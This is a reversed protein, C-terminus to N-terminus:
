ARDLRGASSLARRLQDTAIYSTSRGSGETRLWGAAALSRLDLVATAPAIGHRGRHGRNTLPHGTVARVLADVCRPSLQELTSLHTCSDHQASAAQAQECSLQLRQRCVHLCFSAWSLMDRPSHGRAFEQAAVYDGRHDILWPDIAVWDTPLGTGEALVAAFGILALPGSWPKDLLTRQVATMTAVARIPRPVAADSGGLQDLVAPLQRLADQGAASTTPNGAQILFFLEQCLRLSWPEPLAGIGMSARQWALALGRWRPDTGAPGGLPDAALAHAVADPVPQGELALAASLVTARIGTSFPDFWPGGRKALSSLAGLADYIEGVVDTLAPAIQWATTM